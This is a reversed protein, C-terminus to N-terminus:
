FLNNNDVKVFYKATENHTVPHNAHNAQYLMDCDLQSKSPDNAWTDAMNNYLNLTIDDMYEPDGLFSPMNRYYDPRPDVANYFGLATSSYRNYHSGLGAKLKQNEDITWEYSLIVTPDYSSVSRSNLKKGDQYGWQPNYYIDGHM